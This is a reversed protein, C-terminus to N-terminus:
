CRPPTHTLSALCLQFNFTSLLAARHPHAGRQPPPQHWSEAGRATLRPLHPFLQFYLTSLQFSFPRHLARPSPPPQRWSEAACATLRTLHFCSTTTVPHHHRCRARVVRGTPVPRPVTQDVLKMHFEAYAPTTAAILRNLQIQHFHPKAAPRAIRHRWM